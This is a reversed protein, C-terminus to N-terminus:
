ISQNLGNVLLIAPIYTHNKLYYSDVLEERVVPFTTEQPRIMMYQRFRGISVRNRRSFMKIRPIIGPGPMGSTQAM